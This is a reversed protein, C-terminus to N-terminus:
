CARNVTKIQIKELPVIPTGEYFLTSRSGDRVPQPLPLPGLMAWFMELTALIDMKLTILPAVVNLMIVNLTVVFPM